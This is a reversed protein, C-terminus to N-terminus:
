KQPQDIDQQRGYCIEENDRVGAIKTDDAFMSVSGDVKVDLDNIYCLVDSTGVCIEASRWQDWVTLWFIM